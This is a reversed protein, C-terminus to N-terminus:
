YKYAAKQEGLLIQRIHNNEKLNMTQPYMYILFETIDKSIQYIDMIQMKGPTQNTHIDTLMDKLIKDASATLIIWTNKNQDIIRRPNAYELMDRIYEETLGFNNELMEMTKYNRLWNEIDEKRYKYMGIINTFVTNVIKVNNEINMMNEYFAYQDDKDVIDHSFALKLSAFAPNPGRGTRKKSIFKPLLEVRVEPVYMRAKQTVFQKIDDSTIKYVDLSGIPQIRSRVSPNFIDKTVDTSLEINASCQPCQSQLNIQM